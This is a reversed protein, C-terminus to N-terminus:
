PLVELRFFAHLGASPPRVLLSAPTTTARMWDSFPTWTQLDPSSLLRYSRGRSSTWAFRLNGNPEVLPPSLRFCDIPSTPDTGAMFEAYDTAGDGDTDTTPTRSPSVEVFYNTEWADSMGNANADAFSYTGTFTVTAESVVLNTQPAPTQYFPVAAWRVSYEGLLLNTLSLSLGEGTRSIPGSLIFQAQSLNNTIVIAGRVANSVTVSVDDVLWGPYVFPGNLDFAFVRSAWVLFVTRGLYPSLDLEAEEWGLSVPSLTDESFEILTIPTVANNTVLLVQGHNYIEFEARESFDYSHWFRLTAVNGGTLELAPSVLFTEVSDVAFGDLNSGWTHVPSHAETELGNNPPGLRWSIQTDESDLVTWNTGGSELDDFWPPTLPKLTRFSYLRGQNDDSITNGAADRSVVRYDYLRDPRLGEITIAHDAFLEADYATRELFPSEGFQVLADAPKSTSWQVEASEYDPLAVVGAITPADTDVVAVAGIVGAASADFYEVRITDGHTARLQGPAPANTAPVLTVSGRFLGRRGTEQLNVARGNTDTTSFCTVSAQGLGALDSDAVEVTVRAPITYSASDLALTGVGNVGPALFRLIRRLLNARNNPAAGSEPVADLPFSLFVVRGASDQGTRPLRIGLARGSAPETLIATANTTPRFTDTLDPGINPFLPELEFVPYASFDPAFDVGSAIPDGAV